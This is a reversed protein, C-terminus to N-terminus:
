GAPAPPPAPATAPAAEAPAPAAAAPATVPAAGTPTAAPADGAPAPAAGTPASAPDATAPVTSDDVSKNADAEISEVNSKIVAIPSVAQQAQLEAEANMTDSQDCGVMGFVLAAGALIVKKNM